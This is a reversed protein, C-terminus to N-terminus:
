KDSRKPKIIITRVSNFIIEKSVKEEKINNIIVEIKHRLLIVNVNRIKINREKEKIFM